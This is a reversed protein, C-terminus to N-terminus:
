KKLGEIFKVVELHGNESAWRVAQNNDTTVDAGKELCDKALTINGFKCAKLFLNNM